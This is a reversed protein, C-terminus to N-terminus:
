NISYLFNGAVTKEADLQLERAAQEVMRQVETIDDEEKDGQKKDASGPGSAMVRLEANSLDSKSPPREPQKGKLHALRCNCKIIKLTLIHGTKRAPFGIDTTVTVTVTFM